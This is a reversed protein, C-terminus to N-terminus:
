GAPFEPFGLWGDCLRKTEDVMARLAEAFRRPLRMAGTGPLGLPSYSFYATKLKAANMKQYYGATLVVCAILAMTFAHRKLFGTFSPVSFRQAAKEAIVPLADSLCIMVVPILLLATWVRQSGPVPYEQLILFAALICLLLRPFHDKFDVDVIKKPQLLLIWVLPILLPNGFVDREQFALMYLAYCAYILKIVAVSIETPQNSNRHLVLSRYILAAVLAFPATYFILASMPAFQVYAPSSFNLPRFIVSNLIEGITNGMAVMTLCISGLVFIAAVVSALVDSWAPPSQLDRDILVILCCAIASTSLVLFNIAYTQELQGWMLAAPVLLAILSVITRLCFVLRNLPLTYILTLAVSAALFLGLNVKVLLSAGICAGLGSIVLLRGRGTNICTSLLPAIFLILLGLEHPHGPEAVLQRLLVILQLLALVGLIVSGTIRFVLVAGTWAIVLWFVITTLRNAYHSVEGDLLQYIAYKHLYYLPGYYGSIQDYSSPTDIFQQVRLLTAGEDDYISFQSFISYFAFEFGLVLIVLSFGLFILNKSASLKTDRTM